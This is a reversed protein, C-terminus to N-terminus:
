TYVSLHFALKYNASDTPANWSAVFQSGTKQTITVPQFQPSGDVYDVLMAVVSYVDGSLTIPLPVTISSQAAAVAVEGIQEQVVPVIYSIRYNASDTPANWIATFGSTTKNSVLITQFQPSADVLNVFQVIPVYNTGSLPSPFTIVLSTLGGGVSVEQAVGSNGSGGGAGGGGAAIMVVRATGGVANEIINGASGATKFQGAGNTCELDVWGCQMASSAFLTGPNPLLGVSAVEASFNALITGTNDLSFACRRILGVTSAPFTISVPGGVITGTQFNISTAPVSPVSTGISGVSRGAGNPNAIQSPSFHLLADPTGSAFLRLPSDLSQDFADNIARQTTGIPKNVVPLDVNSEIRETKPFNM